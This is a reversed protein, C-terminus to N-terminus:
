PVGSQPYGAKACAFAPVVWQREGGKIKPMGDRVIATANRGHYSSSKKLSEGSVRNELYQCSDHKDFIPLESTHGAGTNRM